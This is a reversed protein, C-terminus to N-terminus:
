ATTHTMLCMSDSNCLPSLPSRPPCLPTQPRFGPHCWKPVSFGGHWFRLIKLGQLFSVMMPLRHWAEGWLGSAYVSRRKGYQREAWSNFIKGGLIRLLIKLGQTFLCTCMPRHWAGWPKKATQSRVLSGRDKFKWESEERPAPQFLSMRFIDAGRRAYFPVGKAPHLFPAWIKRTLELCLLVEWLYSM